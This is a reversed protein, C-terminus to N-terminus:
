KFLKSWIVLSETNYNRLAKQAAQAKRLVRFGYLVKEMVRVIDKSETQSAHFQEPMWFVEDSVVIPVGLSVFDATVINFTETFSVQLGIDMSMVLKLFEKHNLWGHEVLAFKDPDLNDFLGRLNKLVNNGSNEIRAVNIHFNLKKHHKQAYEIAAIAQVLHNKLPRIAGFCGVDITDGIVERGVPRTNIQYYNPLYLVKNESAHYGHAASVIRVTDYFARKSNPAMYVNPYELYKITWDVAIGENALFPMESHNRIIWKVEPHLRTLVEFKEPVVWFAEVLVHSPKYETVERDICNNDVVEVLKAQIGNDNLMTVVFQASNRLGSSLNHTSYPGVGSEETTIERKKLVFLLRAM